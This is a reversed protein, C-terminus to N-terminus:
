GLLRKPVAFILFDKTDTEVRNVAVGKILRPIDDRMDRPVLIYRTSGPGRNSITTTGRRAGEAFLHVDKMNGELAVYEAYGMRVIVKVEGEDAKEVKEIIAM